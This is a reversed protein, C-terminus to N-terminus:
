PAGMALLVVGCAMVIGAWVLIGRFWESATVSRHVMAVLLLVSDAGIGCACFLAPERVHAAIGCARIGVLAVGVVVVAMAFVAAHLKLWRVVTIPESFM